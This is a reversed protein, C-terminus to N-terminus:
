VDLGTMANFVAGRVCVEEKVPEMVEAFWRGVRTGTTEGEYGIVKYTKRIERGVIEYYPQNGDYIPKFKEDTLKIKGSDWEEYTVTHSVSMLGPISM